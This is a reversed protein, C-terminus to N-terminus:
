DREKIEKVLKEFDKTEKRVLKVFSNDEVKGIAAEMEAADRYTALRFPNEFDKKRSIYVQRCVYEQVQLAKDLALRWQERTPSDTELLHCLTAFAHKQKELPYKAWLVNYRNHIKEWASLKGCGIDRRLKDVDKQPILQGGLNVWETERKNKLAKGASSFSKKPNEKFYDLLNKLAYYYLMDEYAHYAEYTKLIVAKRKSREMKEGLIELNGFEERSGSLIKRGYAALEDEGASEADNGQKRLSAKATWIELLRRATFIEEATDPALFSFEINQVKRKRKDRNRFKWTNRALAYMNYLWWFAPM